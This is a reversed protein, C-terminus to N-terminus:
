SVVALVASAAAHNRSASAISLVASTEISPECVDFAMLRLKGLNV